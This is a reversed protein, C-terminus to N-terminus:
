RVVTVSQVSSVVDYEESQYEVCQRCFCLLRWKEKTCKWRQQRYAHTWSSTNCNKLLLKWNYTGEQVVTGNIRGDWQIAGNALECSKGQSVIHDGGFSDFVHLEYETANYAPKDGEGIGLHFIKFVDNTGDGNPTFSKPYILTPFDKGKPFTMQVVATGTGCANRVTVGYSGDQTVAISQAHSGNSWTIEGVASGTVTLTADCCSTRTVAIGPAPVGYYITVSDKATCGAANQATVTYTGVPTIQSNDIVHPRKANPNDLGQAPSWSWNTNGDPFPSGLLSQQTWCRDPGAYVIACTVHILQTTEVWAACMGTVALKVRYYTNCKFKLGHTTAFDTVDTIVAPGNVWGMAEIGYRNWNVDSEQISWFHSSEGTTGAPDAVIKEGLCFTTKPLAFAPYLVLSISGIAAAQGNTSGGAATALVRLFPPFSTFATHWPGGNLNSATIGMQTGMATPAIISYGLATQTIPTLGALFQYANPLNCSSAFLGGGNCLFTTIEAQRANLADLETQTLRGTGDTSNAVAILAVNFSATAIQNGNAFTVPVGLFASTQMWFNTINDNAAKGGGIVLIGTQGNTVRTLIGQNLVNSWTAITGHTSNGPRQGYETDIGVLLVPGQAFLSTSACVVLIFGITRVIVRM